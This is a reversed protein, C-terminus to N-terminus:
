EFHLPQLGEVNLGGPWNKIIRQLHEHYAKHAEIYPVTRNEKHSMVAQWKETIVLHMLHQEGPDNWKIGVASERKLTGKSSDWSIYDCEPLYLRDINAPQPTQQECHPQSASAM